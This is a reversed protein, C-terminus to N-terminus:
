KTSSSQHTSTKGARRRQRDLWTKRAQMEQGVRDLEHKRHNPYDSPLFPNILM